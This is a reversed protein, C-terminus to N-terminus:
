EIEVMEYKFKSIHAWESTGFEVYKGSSFLLLINASGGINIIGDGIADKPYPAKASSIYYDKDHLSYYGLKWAGKIIGTGFIKRAHKLLSYSKLAYVKDKM